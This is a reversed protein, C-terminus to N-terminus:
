ARCCCCCCGCFRSGSKIGKATATVKTGDHRECRALKTVTIGNCGARQTMECSRMRRGVVVIIIRLLHSGKRRWGKLEM